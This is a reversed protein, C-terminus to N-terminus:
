KARWVQKWQLGIDFQPQYYTESVKLGYRITLIINCTNIVPVYWFSETIYHIWNNISTYSKSLFKDDDPSPTNFQKVWSSANEHPKISCNAQVFICITMNSIKLLSTKRQLYQKALATKNSAIISVEQRWMEVTNVKTRATNFFLPTGSCM